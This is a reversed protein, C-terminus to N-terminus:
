DNKIVLKTEVPIVELHNKIYEYKLDRRHNGNLRKYAHFIDDLEDVENEPVGNLSIYRSYLQDITSGLLEKSGCVLADIKDDRETQTEVVTKISDTLEKQIELSQARDSIRNNTFQKIENRVEVMFDALIHELNDNKQVVEKKDKCHTEQIEKITELANMLLEREERQQRNWKTEIGLKVCFWEIISIISKIGFLIIFLGILISSFDLESLTSIDGM